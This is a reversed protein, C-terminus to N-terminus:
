VENAVTARVHAPAEIDTRAAAPVELQGRTGSGSCGGLAAGLTLAASGGNSDIRSALTRSLFPVTPGAFQPQM